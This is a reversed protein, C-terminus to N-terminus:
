GGRAAEGLFVARMVVVMPAAMGVRVGIVWGDALAADPVDPDVVDAVGVLVWGRRHPLTAV